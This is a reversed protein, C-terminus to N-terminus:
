CEEKRCGRRRSIHKQPMFQVKVTHLLVAARPLDNPPVLSTFPHSQPWCPLQPSYINDPFSGAPFITAIIPTV